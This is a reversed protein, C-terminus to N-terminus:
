TRKTEELYKNWKRAVDEVLRENKRSYDSSSSQHAIEHRLLSTAENAEQWAGGEAPTKNIVEENAGTEPYGSRHLSNNSSKTLLLDSMGHLKAIRRELEICGAAAGTTSSGTAHTFDIATQVAGQKLSSVIIQESGGAFIVGGAGSLAGEILFRKLSVDGVGKKVEPDKITKSIGYEVGNGASSSLAGGAVAGVPGGVVFGGAAGATTILDNTSVAAARKAEDTNGVIAHIAAVIHGLIPIKEVFRTIYGDKSFANGM